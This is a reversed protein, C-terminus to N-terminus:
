YRSQCRSASTEILIHDPPQPRALLAAITPVFDDAVTCCLCGNTLEVIADEPLDADACGKLIDGDIGLDGFENVLIALRRGQPNQMLHRVLTTKGAGLFGTIITVPIKEISMPLMRFSAHRIAPRTRDRGQPFDDATGAM